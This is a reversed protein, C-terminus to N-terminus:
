RGKEDGNTRRVILIDYADDTAVTRGVSTVSSVIRGANESGIAVLRADNDRAYRRLRRAIVGPQAHRDVLIYDFTAPDGIESVRRSLRTLIEDEDYAADNALWGRERAYGANGQPIATVAIVDETAAKFELARALAVRSLPTNDFPVVISM